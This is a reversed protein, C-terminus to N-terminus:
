NCLKNIGNGGCYLTNRHPRLASLFLFVSLFGYPGGTVPTAWASSVNPGLGNALVAKFKRLKEVDILHFLFHQQPSRDGGDESADGTLLTM